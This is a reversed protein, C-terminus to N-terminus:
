LNVCNPIYRLLLQLSFATKNQYLIQCTLFFFLITLTSYINFHIITINNWWHKNVFYKWQLELNLLCLFLVLLKIKIFMCHANSRLCFWCYISKTLIFYILVFVPENFLSHSYYIIYMRPIKQLSCIKTSIENSRVICM